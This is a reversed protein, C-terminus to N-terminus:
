FKYYKTIKEFIDFDINLLEKAKKNALVIQEDIVYSRGLRSAQTTQNQYAYYECIDMINEAENPTIRNAEFYRLATNTFRM